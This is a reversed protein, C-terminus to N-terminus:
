GAIFSHYDQDRILMCWLNIAMRRAMGTIAKQACGTNRVLRRYVAAAGKDRRVWQWAAQILMARLDGQGSKQLPGERRTQGSQMIRPALGVFSTIEESGGFRRPRFIETIYKMAVTEGVGPHTRLRAHKQSFRKEKALRRIEEKVRRLLDGLHALEELLIDLTFRLEQCLDIKGLDNVSRRTWCELGPPAKIGYMLLFSKIQQKTRRQKKVLQDRLRTVQRDAEEQETPVAIKRLLDKECYEALMRCDLRDTKSGANAPTPTKGPAIVEAPWARRELERMLGFGTPGAEYVIKRCASRVPDLTAIISEIEAPMVTTFVQGNIRVASHVSNKHVDLGIYVEDKESIGSCAEKFKSKEVKRRYKTM